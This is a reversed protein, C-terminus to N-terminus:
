SMTTVIGLGCKAQENEPGSNANLSQAGVVVVKLPFM